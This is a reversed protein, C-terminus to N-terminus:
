KRAGALALDLSVQPDTDRYCAVLHRVVVGVLQHGESTRAEAIIGSMDRLQALVADVLRLVEQARESVKPIFWV